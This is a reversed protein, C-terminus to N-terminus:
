QLAVNANSNESHGNSDPSSKVKEISHNKISMKLFFIIMIMWTESAQNAPNKTMIKMTIIDGQCHNDNDDDDNNVIM